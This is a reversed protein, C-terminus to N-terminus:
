GTKTGASNLEIKIVTTPVKIFIRKVVVAAYTSVLGPSTNLFAM